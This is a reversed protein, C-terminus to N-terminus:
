RRVEAGMQELEHKIKDILTPWSSGFVVELRFGGPEYIERVETIRADMTVGWAKNQVTALDGLGWDKQYTFPGRTLIEAELLRNAQLETLVQEGRQELGTALDRADVFVEHLDLGFPAESPVAVIERDVGEGQGAVYTFNRYSLDSEAYHQSKLNDFDPSFIVPPNSAQGTTLDKGEYTEFVWKLLSFDLYINWGLGTLLSIKELEEALNRYRSQWAVSEGRGQDVAIMFMDIKRAALAPNVLCNNVYHKMVTEANGTKSDHALGAPPVILRQGAIGQLTPGRILLQESGKGGKDLTIEKHRIIGAKVPSLMVLNGRQLTDTSRKHRNIQLQFEGPRHWRRTFVLSEYDDIEALIELGTTLVRIPQM